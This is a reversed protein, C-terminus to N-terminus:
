VSTLITESLYLWRGRWAGPKFFLDSAVGVKPIENVIARDSPSHAAQARRHALSTEALLGLPNLTNDPLSHLKPSRPSEDPATSRGSGRHVLAPASRASPSYQPRAASLSLHPSRTSSSGGHKAVSASSPGSADASPSPSRTSLGDALAPNGISRLVTDLTREMKRLSRALM